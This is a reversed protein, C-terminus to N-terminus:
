FSNTISNKNDNQGNDDVLLGDAKKIDFTVPRSESLYSGPLQFIEGHEAVLRDKGDLLLVCESASQLM